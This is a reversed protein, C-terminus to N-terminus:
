RLSSLRALALPQSHSGSGQALASDKLILDLCHEFDIDETARCLDAEFEPGALAVLGSGPLRVGIDGSWTAPAKGERLYSGTGEFPKPMKVEASLPQEGLPSLELTDLEDFILARKDVAVRGVKEQLGGFAITTSAQDKGLFFSLETALLYRLVGQGRAEADLVAGEERLKGASAGARSPKKCVQRYSRVVRGKARHANIKVYGHEGFFRVDGTFIGKEGVAKRGRCDDRLFWPLKLGPILQPHFRSQSRFRLSVHGFSDFDAEIGKRTVKGLATYRAIADEKDLTMTVQRHGSTRLVASYGNSASLPVTAHLAKPKVFHSPKASAAAPLASLLAAVCLLVLV